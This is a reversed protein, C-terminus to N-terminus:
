EEREKGGVDFDCDDWFATDDENDGKFASRDIGGRM